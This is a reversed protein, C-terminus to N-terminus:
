KISKAALTILETLVDGNVDSLKKIYLCAKSRNHKGLRELMENMGRMSEFPLYLTIAQKRASFGLSPWENLKGDKMRISYKKFGVIASGWMLGDEGTAARMLNYISQCDRRKEIPLITDLYENVPQDTPKTKPEGM